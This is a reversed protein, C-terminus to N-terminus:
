CSLTLVSTCHTSCVLLIRSKKAFLVFPQVLTCVLKIFLLIYEVLYDGLVGDGDNDQGGELVDEADEADYDLGDGSCM